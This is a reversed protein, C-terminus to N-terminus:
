SSVIASVLEMFEYGDGSGAPIVVKCDYWM